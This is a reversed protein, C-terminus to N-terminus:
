GVDLSETTITATNSSFRNCLNTYALTAKVLDLKYPVDLALIVDGVPKGLTKGVEAVHYSHNAM